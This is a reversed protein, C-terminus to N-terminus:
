MPCVQAEGSLWVERWGVSQTTACGTTYHYCRHSSSNARACALVHAPPTVSVNGCVNEVEPTVQTVRPLVSTSSVGGDYVPSADCCSCIEATMNQHASPWFRLCLTQTLVAPWSYFFIFGFTSNKRSNDFNIIRVFYFVRLYSSCVTLNRWNKNKKGVM